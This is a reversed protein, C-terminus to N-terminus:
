GAGGQKGGMLPPILPLTGRYDGLIDLGSTERNKLMVAALELAQEQTEIEGAARAEGITALLSGIHPGPPLGFHSMLDHGNVLRPTAISVPESSGTNLVHSIMRAHNLWEPHSLEPGKAGLYDALCLYLTDLAVDGVDRFYRYIARNTPWESRNGDPSPSMGAPRLHHEVMRSVMSIGRSSLRLRGLREAAIVAGQESHGFFRTRGDPELTKTQPKAIDHFLAAVKLVTRRTHGDSVTESFYAESEPTWPVCFFVPSNQHGGTVGEAAEVTHLSHGWVDWYHMKPQEVGKSAMLEPIVHELLGLWDLTQIRGRAGDPALIRLFEERVRDPAVQPLLHADAVLLRVTDPEMRLGLDGALRVARLLRGPDDRFVQPNLARLTKRMLDARGGYPDIVLDEFPEPGFSAGNDDQAQGLAAFSVAMSNVSFDRRALDSEISESFGSLDIALGPKGGRGEGDENALVVRMMGRPASLPAVSGGLEIALEQAVAVADGAVAVDIDKESSRALLRDRVAGGVLYADLNRAAFFSALRDIM